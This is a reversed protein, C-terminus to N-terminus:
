NFHDSGPLGNMGAFADDLTRNFLHHSILYRVCHPGFLVLRHRIVLLIVQSKVVFYLCVPDLNEPSSYVSVLLGCSISIFM